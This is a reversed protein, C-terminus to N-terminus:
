ICLFLNAKLDWTGNIHAHSYSRGTLKNRHAASPESGGRPSSNPSQLCWDTDSHCGIWGLWRWIESRWSCLPSHGSPSKKVECFCHQNRESGLILDLHAIELYKTVDAPTPLWEHHEWAGVPMHQQLSRLCLPGLLGLLFPLDVWLPMMLCRSECPFFSILFFFVGSSHKNTQILWIKGTLSCIDRKRNQSCFRKRGRTPGQHLLVFIARAHLGDHVM